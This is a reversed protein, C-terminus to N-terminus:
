DTIAQQHGTKAVRPECDCRPKGQADEGGPARTTRSVPGFSNISLETPTQNKPVIGVEGFILAVCVAKPLRSHDSRRRLVSDTALGANKRSRACSVVSSSVM